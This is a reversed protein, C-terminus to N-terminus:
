SYLPLKMIELYIEDSVLKLAVEPNFGRAIAKVIHNANWVGLPDEMDERPSIYVTGDNSDIELITRTAKEISKKINGNSGILAGVRNQPIKLYDTEPM